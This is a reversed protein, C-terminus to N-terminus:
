LLQAIRGVAASSLLVSSWCEGLLIHNMLKGTHLLEYKNKKQKIFNFPSLPINRILIFINHWYLRLM